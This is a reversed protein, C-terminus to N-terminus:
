DKITCVSYMLEPDEICDNGKFIDYYIDNIEYHPKM